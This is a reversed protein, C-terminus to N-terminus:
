PQYIQVYDYVDGLNSSSGGFCYLLGGDTASAATEVTDPMPALTTWTKNKANYVQTLSLLGTTNVGGAVYLQNKIVAFCSELRPTPDVTVATWSNKKVNYSENDGAPTGGDGSRQGGADLIAGNLLGVASWAKPVLLPSEETWTDTSSNYSEVTDYWFDTDPDYGGIVYITEGDVVAPM